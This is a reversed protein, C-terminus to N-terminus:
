ETAHKAKMYTHEKWIKKYNIELKMNNYVLIINLMKEIKFKNLSSKHGLM